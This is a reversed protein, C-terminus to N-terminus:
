IQNYGSFMDIFSYSENGVVDNLLADTYPISFPDVLTCANVKRYDVCVRVKKNKKLVIVIPLLWTPKHIAMIFGVQLLKDIEEKVRAAYNPNMQNRQQRIPKADQKLVIKHQALTPDLGKM